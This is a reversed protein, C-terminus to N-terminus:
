ASKGNLREKAEDFTETFREGMKGNEEFKYLVVLEKMNEDCCIAFAFLHKQEQQKEPLQTFFLLNIRRESFPYEELYPRIVKNKNINELCMEMSGVLIARAEEVTILREITFVLTVGNIGFGFITKDGGVCIRVKYASEINEIIETKVQNIENLYLNGFLTNMLFLLVCLNMCINM